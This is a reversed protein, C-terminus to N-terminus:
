GNCSARSKSNPQLCTTTILPRQNARVKFTKVMGFSGPKTVTVKLATGARLPKKIWPKLSLTSLANPKTLRMAKAKRKPCSKGKCTVDVTAGSPSGKVQLRSFTTSKGARPFDFAITVNIRGPQAAAPRAASAVAPVVKYTHSVKSGNGAADAADVTFTKDGVTSTDILAGSAVPGACRAIGSGNTEDTCALDAAVSQGAMVTAGDAPTSLRISPALKDVVTIKGTGSRTLPTGAGSNATATLVVNYTGAPTAPPMTVTVTTSPTANAGVSLTGM